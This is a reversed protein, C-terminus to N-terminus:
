WAGLMSLFDEMGKASPFLPLTSRVWSSLPFEADWVEEEEEDKSLSLLSALSLTRELVEVLSM